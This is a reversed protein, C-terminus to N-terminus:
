LDSMILSSFVLNEEVIAFALRMEFQYRQLLNIVVHQQETM